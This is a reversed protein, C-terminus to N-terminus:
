LLGGFTINKRTYDDIQQDISKELQQFNIPKLLFDDAGAHLIESERISETIESFVIVPIQSSIRNDRLIRLKILTEQYSVCDLLIIAPKEAAILNQTEAFDNSELFNYKWVMLSNKFLVRTEQDESEILVLPLEGDNTSFVDSMPFFKTFCFEPYITSNQAIM